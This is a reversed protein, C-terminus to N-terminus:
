IKEKQCILRGILEKTATIKYKCKNEHIWMWM